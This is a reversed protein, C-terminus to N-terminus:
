SFFNLVFFQVLNMSLKHFSLIISESSYSFPLGDSWRFDGEYTKDSAGIWYANDDRYGPSFIFM